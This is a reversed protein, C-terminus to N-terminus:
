KDNLWGKVKEFDNDVKVTTYNLGNSKDTFDKSQTIEVIFSIKNYNDFDCGYEFNKDFIHKKIIELVELDRIIQNEQDATLSMICPICRDFLKQVLEKSKM